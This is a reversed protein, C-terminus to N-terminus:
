EKDSVLTVRFDEAVPPFSSASFSKGIVQKVAILLALAVVLFRLIQLLYFAIVVWPVSGQLTDGALMAAMMVLYGLLYAPILYLALRWGISWAIKAASGWTVNIESM